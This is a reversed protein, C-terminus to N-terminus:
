LRNRGDGFVGVVCAVAFLVQLTARTRMQQDIRSSVAKHVPPLLDIFQKFVRKLKLGLLPSVEQAPGAGAVGQEPLFDLRQECCVISGTAEDLRRGCAQSCLDEGTILQSEATALDDTMVPDYALDAP